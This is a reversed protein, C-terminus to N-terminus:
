SFLFKSFAPKLSYFKMESEEVQIRGQNFALRNKGGSQSSSPFALLFCEGTTTQGPYLQFAITVCEENFQCRQSCVFTSVNEIMKIIDREGVDEPRIKQYPKIVQPSINQQQQSLSVLFM